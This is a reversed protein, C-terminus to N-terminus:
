FLGVILDCKELRRRKKNTKLLKKVCSVKDNQDFRQVLELLFKITPHRNVCVVPSGNQIETNATIASDGEFGFYDPKSASEIDTIKKFMIKGNQVTEQNLWVNYIARSIIKKCNGDVAEKRAMFVLQKPYDPNVAVDEALLGKPLFQEYLQIKYDPINQLVKGFLSLPQIKVEIFYMRNEETVGIFIENNIPAIRIFSSGIYADLCEHHIHCINPTPISENSSPWQIKQKEDSWHSYICLNYKGKVDQSYEGKHWKSKNEVSFLHYKFDPSMCCASIKGLKECPRFISHQSPKFFWANQNTVIDRSYYLDLEAETFLRNNKRRYIFTYRFDKKQPAKVYFFGQKSLGFSITPLDPSYDNEFFGESSEKKQFPVILSNDEGLITNVLKFNGKEKNDEEQNTTNKGQYVKYVNIKNEYYVM